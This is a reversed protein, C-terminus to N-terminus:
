RDFGSGCFVRNSDQKDRSMGQRLRGTIWKIQRRAYRRTARKVEEIGLTLLRQAEPQALLPEVPHQLPGEVAGPQLPAWGAAALWDFLPQFEKFGIAQLIGRTYDLMPLVDSVTAGAANPSTPPTAAGAPPSRGIREGDSGLVLTPPREQVLRVYFALLEALLGQALMDDVRADLRVTHVDRETDLWFCCVPAHRLRPGRAAQEALIVSHLRGREAYIELSRRVKRTNNPHLRGAMVPDVETLRRHLAAADLTESALEALLAPHAAQCPPSGSALVSDGGAVDPPSTAAAQGHEAPANESRAVLTEFLLAELYYHTGGVLVPVHGRSEIDELCALAAASFDVVTWPQATPDLIDLLHHPASAREVM